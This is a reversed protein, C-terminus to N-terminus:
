LEGIETLLQKADDMYGLQDHGHRGHGVACDKTFELLKQYKTQLKEYDTIAKRTRMSFAADCDCVRTEGEFPNTHDIWRGYDQCINCNYKPQELEKRQKYIIKTM